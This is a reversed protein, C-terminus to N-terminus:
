LYPNAVGLKKLIKIEKAEMQEAEAKTEHDAGQLHLMGHVLLHVVHNRFSKQQERAEEAVIEFALVMDGLHSGEGTFSLINTPKPKGRYTTNLDQIFANDALVVTLDTAKASKAIAAECAQTITKTYPKLPAKWRSDIVQIAINLAM